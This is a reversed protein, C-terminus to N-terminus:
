KAAIKKYHGVSTRIIMHWKQCMDALARNISRESTRLQTKLRYVDGTTFEDPMLRYITSALPTVDNNGFRGTHKPVLNESVYTSHNTLINVISMSNKFDQESCVLAQDDEAFIPTTYEGTMDVRRLMTFIMALRFTILGLRRVIAVQNDGFLAVQEEQLKTFFKLFETQQEPTLKFQLQHEGLAKLADYVPKYLGGLNVFLEEPTINNEAFINRFELNRPMCYFLFRSGLGSDYSPILIAIQSPTMTIALALCPSQIDVHENDKRRTYAMPEHHFAKCLGEAYNGYDKKLTDAIINGETEFMLGIGGNDKLAQCFATSSNNAAVFLSRYAPPVPPQEDSNKSHEANWTALKQNYEKVEAEYAKRIEAEIPEVLKRCTIMDGKGSAPPAPVVFYIPTYVKRQDYLGYYNPMVASLTAMSGLLMLDKSAVTDHVSIASQLLPPLTEVDIQNVITPLQHNGTNEITSTVAAMGDAVTNSETQTTTDEFDIMNNIDVENNIIQQEDDTTESIYYTNDGSFQCFHSPPTDPPEEPMPFDTIEMTDMAVKVTDIGAKGAMWFFTSITTRGDNTALCNDYKKNCENYDYKTSVRSIAHFFDRGEEGLQNALAFGIRLWDNYDEAININEATLQEVVAAVQRKIWGANVPVETSTGNTLVQSGTAVGNQETKPALWDEPKFEQKM